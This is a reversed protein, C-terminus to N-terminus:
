PRNVLATAYKELGNKLPTCLERALRLEQKFRMNTLAGMGGKLTEQFQVAQSRVSSWIEAFLILKACILAIDPKLGDFDSKVKALAKQQKNVEDLEKQRSALTKQKEARQAILVALTTGAVILGIVGFMTAAGAASALVAKTAEKIQGDLSEIVTKLDNIEGQLQKAREQLETGTKEIWADFRVVFDEVDRKLNLFGQSMETSRDHDENAFQGLEAIVDLRDQNTRIQEVMDLFVKDFRNLVSAHESAVDRSLALHSVWRSNYDKWEDRFEVLKPFTGSFEATLATLGRTVRDFAEDIQVAWTAVQAVNEAFTGKDEELADIAGQVFKDSEAQSVGSTRYGELVKQADVYSQTATTAM